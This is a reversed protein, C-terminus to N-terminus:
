FYAEYALLLGLDPNMLVRDLKSWLTGNTWIYFSSGTALADVLGSAVMFEKLDRLLYTWRAQGLLLPFLQLGGLCGLTAYDYCAVLYPAGLAREENMQNLILHYTQEVDSIPDGTINKLHALLVQVKLNM